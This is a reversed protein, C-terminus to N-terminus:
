SAPPKTVPKDKLTIPDIQRLGTVDLDFHVDSGYPGTKAEVCGYAIATVDRHRAASEEAARRAAATCAANDIWHTDNHVAPDPAAHTTGNALTTGLMVVLITYM